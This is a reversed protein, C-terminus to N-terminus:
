RLDLVEQGMRRAAIECARENIEIGVCKRNISKAARLTSGAGMFPDCIIGTKDKCQEICWRMLPEPKQAPYERGCEKDGAQCIGKWLYRFMRCATGTNSWAIEVDSFSDYSELGDLKDWILWRGGEPLRRAYNNAGWILVEPYELLFAPDFPTDDGHIIETNVRYHRGKGGGSHLYSIGYPPDSVIISIDQLEPLLERCDGNYITAWMDQYYPKPLSM